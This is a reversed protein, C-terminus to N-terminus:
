SAYRWELVVNRGDVYGPNRMGLRFADVPLEGPKEAMVLDMLYVRTM